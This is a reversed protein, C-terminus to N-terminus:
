RRSRAIVAASVVGIADLTPDIAPRRSRVGAVMAGTDGARGSDLVVLPWRPAPVPDLLVAGEASRRYRVAGGHASVAHDLGSPTGHFVREVAFGDRHLEAFSATRGDLAARARLLAVALAGSSGMGRGVPLATEIRVGVGEVPLVTDLAAHLRADDITADVTRPGPRQKLWVETRRDVAVAVAEHGFVVAHEGALILKGPAHGHGQAGGSV